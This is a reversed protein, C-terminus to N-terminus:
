RLASPDVIIPTGTPPPPILKDEVGGLGMPMKGAVPAQGGAASM